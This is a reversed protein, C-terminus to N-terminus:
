LWRRTRQAGCAVVALFVLFVLYVSRMNTTPDNTRCEFVLCCGSKVLDLGCPLTNTVAARNRSLPIRSAQRACQCPAVPKWGESFLSVGARFLAAQAMDPSPTLKRTATGELAMDGPRPGWRDGPMAGIREGCNAANSPRTKGEKNGRTGLLCCLRERVDDTSSPGFTATRLNLSFSVFAKPDM